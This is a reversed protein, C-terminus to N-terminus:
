KTPVLRITIQKSRRVKADIFEKASQLASDKESPMFLCRRFSHILVDGKGIRLSHVTRPQPVEPVHIQYGRYDALHM